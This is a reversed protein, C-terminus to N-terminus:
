LSRDKQSAAQRSLKTSHSDQGFLQADGSNVHREAIIQGTRIEPFMTEQKDAWTYKSPAKKAWEERDMEVFPDDTRHSASERDIVLPTGDPLLRM